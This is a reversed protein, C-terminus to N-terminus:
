QRQSSFNNMLEAPPGGPAIENQVTKFPDMTQFRASDNNGVLNDKRSEKIPVNILEIREKAMANKEERDFLYPNKASVSLGIKNMKLVTNFLGM